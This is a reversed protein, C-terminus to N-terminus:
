PLPNDLPPGPMSNDPPAVFTTTDPAPVPMSNDALAPSAAATTIGLILAIMALIKKTRTM